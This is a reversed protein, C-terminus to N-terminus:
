DTYQPYNLEILGKTIEGLELSSVFLISLEFARDHTIRNKCLIIVRSVHGFSFLKARIRELGLISHVM